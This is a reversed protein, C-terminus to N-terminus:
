FGLQGLGQRAAAAEELEEERKETPSLFPPLSTPEVKWSFRLKLDLMYLGSGVERSLM